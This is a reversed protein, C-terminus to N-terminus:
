KSDDDDDDDDDDGGVDAKTVKLPETPVEMGAGESSAAADDATTGEYSPMSSSTDTNKPKKSRSKDTKKPKTKDEEKREKKEETKSSSSSSDSSKEGKSEKKAESDANGLGAFPNKVTSKFFSDVLSKTKDEGWHSRRQLQNNSTPIADAHSAIFIALFLVLSSLLALVASNRHDQM